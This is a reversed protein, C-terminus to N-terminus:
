YVVINAACYKAVTVTSSAQTLKFTRGGCCYQFLVKECQMAKNDDQYSEVVCHM